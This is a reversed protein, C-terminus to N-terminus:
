PLSRIKNYLTFVKVPRRRWRGSISRDHLLLFTLVLRDCQGSWLGVVKSHLCENMGEGGDDDNESGQNM